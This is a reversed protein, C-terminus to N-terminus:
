LGFRDAMYDNVIQINADSIANDYAAVEIMYGKFWNSTAATTFLNALAFTNLTLTNVNLAGATVTRVGNLWVDATTGNLRMTLVRTSNSPAFGMSVSATGSDDADKVILSTSANWNSYAWLFPEANGSNGAGFYTSTDPAASTDRFVLTITFAADAGDVYGAFADRRLCDDTGDFFVGPRGNQAGDVALPQSAATGQTFHNGAGSTDEWAAIAASGGAPLDIGTTMGTDEYFYVSNAQLWLVMGTITTLNVPPAPSSTLATGVAHPQLNPQVGAFVGPM